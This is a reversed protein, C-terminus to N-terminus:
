YLSRQTESINIMLLIKWFILCKQLPQYNLHFILASFQLKIFTFLCVIRYQSAVTNAQWRVISILSFYQFSQLESLLHNSDKTVFGIITTSLDLM